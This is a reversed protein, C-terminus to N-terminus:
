ANNGSQLTELETVKCIRPGDDDDWEVTVWLTESDIKRIIGCRNDKSGRRKVKDGKKPPTYKLM